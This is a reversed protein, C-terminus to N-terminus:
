LINSLDSLKEIKYTYKYRCSKNKDDFYCTDIKANIGGLVDATPADGVILVKSRNSEPIHNMVYDFFRKSPKKLDIEESIFIGDFYKNIRSAKIRKYQFEPYGNTTLYIKYGQEKLYNLIKIAGSKTKCSNSLSNYYDEVITEIDEVQLMKLLVKFRCTIYTKADIEDGLNFFQWNEIENYTTYVDEGFPLGHKELTSLLASKEDSSFDLLTDDLDIFISNYKRSM